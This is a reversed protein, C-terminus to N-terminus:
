ELDVVTIGAGGFRVDEDRYRSVGRVTDLYQRISQRLAGTGTGHLIRVRPINFQIADDIFYTIAQVAEDVRMGRVDIDQKFRLQRSRMDNTTAASVFSANKSASPIKSLTRRLRSVDVTTKLMGFLVTAKKGNIELIKGPQGEGDLKVVDGVLLPEEARNVSKEDGRKVGRRRPAKKLAEPVAVHNQQLRTKDAELERRLERTREKEAQVKRIEHITREISANSGEIIKRAEDRAEAIIERRQSRLQEADNEYRELVQEVKKEKQRISLRKNEWYKKDRAIDLLYKDMNVYDSGVIQEAEDIIERPLGTKRAIEIAFSSGPNGIALRFLPLMKQRDYLMSGNILGDTDEAFHKLNQYHTTIVGWVQKNNLQHLVAQAIAGGIQPETGGGFEDILVLSARGGKQLLFKMNRLHSSYTSLDSEISQDDGIDIFIDRFVGIHSNEYVPPLMGCQTMYQIIGVTKLCVSKGGANPGSIVLIRNRSSLTIDLPVIEKGQRSLSMLLGPHCAHFWELEPKGSLHPLCGGVNKAYLAKAHIHDLSGMVNCSEAIESAHPRLEDALLSLIRAIERREELELERIRNNAEVVEAPEIFVTKGSASEDHVIGSLKRKNMPAVPLVLRGDRVAPSADLDLIGEKQARSIVARMVSNVRGSMRSLESRIGALEASANDKVNGYKDLVRDIAAICNGFTVMNSVLSCLRPYPSRFEEGDPQTKSKMFFQWVDSIACLTARLEVLEAPALFAGGVTLTRLQRSVDRLQSLPVDTDGSVIVLMEATAQLVPELVSFETIMAMDAVLQRGLPSVCLESVAERVSTFGIKQELTEPYIM